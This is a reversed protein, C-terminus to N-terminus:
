FVRVGRSPVDADVVGAGGACPMKAGPMHGTFPSVYEWVIKHRPTVQIFRGWIGEDILTKGNPLRQASGMFPSYFSTTSGTYQWVVRRTLPNIELVRTSPLVSMVAPPYGGEGRFGSADDEWGFGVFQLRILEPGRLLGGHTQFPALGIM